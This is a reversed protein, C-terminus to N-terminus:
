GDYKQGIDNTSPDGHMGYWPERTKDHQQGWANLDDVDSPYRDDISEACSNVCM